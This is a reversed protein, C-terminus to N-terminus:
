PPQEAMRRSDDYRLAYPRAQVLVVRREPGSLIFEVDMASDETRVFHDHVARLMSTLRRVEIDSLIPAGGNLSSHSLREYEGEEGYTYSLVQEPVADARASTVAGGEDRAVQVNLFIAPRGQNFPNGTIAVGDVVDDDISEQVLVAMAVRTGDIRFFEREEHAQFNWTSAWVAALADAVQADSPNAPVVVSRYLGAGNFGPLDEANTSSRFRVRRGPFERAVRQRIAAVLQPDVAGHAIAERLATLAESRRRPENRVEPDQLLNFVRATLGHRQMHALYAHFPVAFGRPTAVNPIRTLEGLQAAKAGVVGVDGLTIQRLPVLGVDRADLDPTTTQTPRLSAWARDAEAQTAEVISWEQPDVSLRVLRGELATLRADTIAGRLAMDPTGRNSALVSLHSLPTQLDTTIVAACVPLDLPMTDLVVVDTRRITGPDFEGHVLRLYGYARGTNLPQYTVGAFLEQTTLVPLGLAQLQPVALEHAPPVPRYRLAAGNHLHDRVVQFARATRDLDLTDGAILEYTWTDTDLYRVVTGLVFRREPRRYELINFAGHSEILDDARNLFREAFFYHIEWTRSQLFYPRWNDHLDIIVKVVETRAYTERGPRAALADWVAPSAVTEAFDASRDVVATQGPARPPATVPRPTARVCAGTLLLWLTLAQTATRPSM